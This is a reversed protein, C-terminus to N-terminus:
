AMWCSTPRGGRPPRPNFYTPMSNVLEMDSDGGERPAHISIPFEGLGNFRCVTAGRAPPTSQFERVRATACVWLRRGGRPPRPNFYLVITEFSRFRLGGRPPRPNFDASILPLIFRLSPRGGRPPRPNFDFATTKKGFIDSDGGRPPPRPNFYPSGRGTGAARLLRRGRAPPTSSFISSPMWGRPRTRDGGRAPPTSQFPRAVLQERMDETAGERPAHISIRRVAQDDTLPTTAGERPRPNFNKNTPISM